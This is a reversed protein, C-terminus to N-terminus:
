NRQWEWESHPMCCKIKTIHGLSIKNFNLQQQLIFHLSVIINKQIRDQSVLIQSEDCNYICYTPPASGRTSMLPPGVCLHKKSLFQLPCLIDSWTNRCTTKKELCSNSNNICCIYNVVNNPWDSASQWRTCDDLSKM